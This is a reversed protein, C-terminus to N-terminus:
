LPRLFEAIRAITPADRLLPAHGQGEVIHAECSKHRTQMQELTDPSLLDSHAGRLALLPIHALGEFQPWATPLAIDLNINEMTRMLASDYRLQFKGDTEMFTGRAYADWDEASLNPFQAGMVRKALGVADAWSQPAPLKGVYSRIRALGQAEIVPGIDNLVAGRLMAPRTIAFLMVHLGGRSTGVFAAEGIELATLCALIDANEVKLDYNRWNSDHASLGRGRYDLAIVRRPGGAAGEALAQALADFDDGNRTLGPLCVIPTLDSVRPGYARAHLRLGDPASIFHSETQARANM